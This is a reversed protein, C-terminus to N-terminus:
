ARVFIHNYISRYAGTDFMAAHKRHSLTLDASRLLATVRATNATDDIDMEVLLSQVRHDALTRSAGAIIDAEIGDVDIKIHNPFLPSFRDVFDDVSFGIAGQRFVSPAAPDLHPAAFTHLASGIATGRMNLRDLSTTESLAVCYAAVRGDLHNLEINRNLAYYNAAAPEFAVVQAGPKLAAYLSYIGVNAGIDWLADDDAFTDIWELTEPEKTLFTNARFVTLESPCFLRVVGRPTEVTAIPTISEVAHALVEVAHREGLVARSGGAVIGLLRDVLRRKFTTGAPPNM